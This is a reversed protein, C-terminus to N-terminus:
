FSEHRWNIWRNKEIKKIISPTWKGFSSNAIAYMFSETNKSHELGFLHGMEHKLIAPLLPKGSMNIMGINQQFHYIVILGRNQYAEGFYEVSTTITKRFLRKRVRVRMSEQNTFLIVINTSLACYPRGNSIRASVLDPNIIGSYSSRDLVEFSIGVNYKYEEFVESIASNVASDSIVGATDKLVCVGITRKTEPLTSSTKTHFCSQTIFM